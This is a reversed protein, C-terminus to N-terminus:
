ARAGLINTYLQELRPIVSSARYRSDAVVKAQVGLNRRLLPDLALTQMATALARLDNPPILLGTEGSTLADRIGGVASAIVPTGTAM